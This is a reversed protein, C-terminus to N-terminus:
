RGVHYTAHPLGGSVLSLPRDWQRGIRQSRRLHRAAVSFTGYTGLNSIVVTALSTFGLFLAGAVCVVNPLLTLRQSERTRGARASAVDWVDVLRAVSPELLVIPLRSDGVEGDDLTGITVHAATAADRLLRDAGVVAIRAGQARCQRLYEDLSGNTVDARYVDAGLRRALLAADPEARPTALVVRLGRDRKLREIPRAAALEGSCRFYITAVPRGEIEISLPGDDSVEDLDRLRVFRGGYRVAIGGNLDIPALNLLPLNRERCAAALAAGRHGGAFRGISAALQILDDVESSRADIAAVSLNQCELGAHDAIVLLDSEVLRDLAGPDRVVVGKSLCQAVDGIALLSGALAPGTAYDPRLIAVATSVDGLALGLGATALTPAVARKALHDRDLPESGSAARAVASALARRIAAARTDQGKRQVEIQFQGFLVLSGALAWAGPRKRAAGDIGSICREDVVGEGAVVRGDAPVVDGTKVVIRQGPRLQACPVAREPGHDSLRAMCPASVHGELLLQHETSVEDLERRKWYVFMWMMIACALFRGSALTGLIILTYVVPLGLRGQRIQTGAEGLTKLNCGVLLIATAAAFPPVGLDALAALGLNSNAIAYRARDGAAPRSSPSDADALAQEALHIVLDQDVLDPHFDLFVSATWPSDIASTVGPVLSVARAARRAKVRDGRLLHHRLQIRGRGDERVNWSTLRRGIRQIQYRSGKAQSPLSGPPLEAGEGRIARAVSCMLEDFRERSVKITASSTVTDIAVSDVGEVAFVRRLFRECHVAGDRGFVRPERLCILGAGRDIEVTARCVPPVTHERIM